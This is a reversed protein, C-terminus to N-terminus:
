YLGEVLITLGCFQGKHVKRFGHGRNALHNFSEGDLGRMTPAIELALLNADEQSMKYAINGYPVNAATMKTVFDNIKDVQSEYNPDTEFM